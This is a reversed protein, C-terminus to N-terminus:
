YLTTKQEVLRTQYAWSTVPWTVFLFVNCSQSLKLSNVALGVSDTWLM